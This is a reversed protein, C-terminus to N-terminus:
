VMASPSMASSACARPTAARARPMVSSALAEPIVRSANYLASRGFALGRKSVTLLTQAASPTRRTACGIWEHLESSQMTMKPTSRLRRVMSCSYEPQAVSFAREHGKLDDVFDVTGSKDGRDSAVQCGTGPRILDRLLSNLPLTKM